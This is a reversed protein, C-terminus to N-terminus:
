QMMMRVREVDRTNVVGDRNVDSLYFELATPTQSGNAFNRILRWDVSDIEGDRNVDGQMFSWRHTELEWRQTPLNNNTQWVATNGVATLVLGSHPQGIRVTGDDNRQIVLGGGNAGTLVTSNNTGTLLTSIGNAHNTSRIQRFESVNNQMIWLQSLNDNGNKNSLSVPSGNASSSMTLYRGDSSKIHHIGYVDDVSATNVSWAFAFRVPSQSQANVRHVMVRTNDQFRSYGWSEWDAAQQNSCFYAMQTSSIPENGQRVLKQNGNDDLRYLDLRLRERAMHQQGTDTGRLWALSVNMGTANWWEPQHFTFSQPATNGIEGFAYNGRATITLAIYPNMVGAGQRATLGQTLQEQARCVCDSRLYKLSHWRHDELVGNNNRRFDFSAEALPTYGSPHNSNPINSLFEIREIRSPHTDNPSIVVRIRSNEGEVFPRLPVKDDTAHTGEYENMYVFWQQRTRPSLGEAIREGPTMGNDMFSWIRDDRPDSASHFLPSRVGNVSFYAQRNSTNNGWTVVNIGYIENMKIPTCGNATLENVLERVEFELSWREAVGQTAANANAFTNDFDDYVFGPLPPAIRGGMQCTTPPAAKSHVSAMLIAKIAHPQAKLSPRLEMMLAITGSVFPAASSTDGGHAAMDPKFANGTGQEHVFDNLTGSIGDATVTIINDSVAFSSHYRNEPNRNNGGGNVIVVNYTNVIHNYFAVENVSNAHRSAGSINIINVERETILSLIQNDFGGNATWCASYVTAGHAVGYENGALIRAVHVAHSNDSNGVGGHEFLRTPKGAMPVFDEHSADVIGLDLVGVRVGEGSIGLQVRGQNVNDMSNSVSDIVIQVEKYMEINLVMSSEAVRFIESVTLNAIVRPALQSRSIVDEDSIRMSSIFSDNAVTYKEICIERRTTIYEDTLERELEREEATREMYDDIEQQIEQVVDEDIVISSEESLSMLKLALDEPLDEQIVDLDDVTFGIERETQREVAEQDIDMLWMSVAIKEDSDAEQMIILLEPCIKEVARAVDAIGSTVMSLFLSLVVVMSMSRFVSRKGRKSM